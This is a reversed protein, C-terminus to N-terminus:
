VHARGIQNEKLPAAGKADADARWGRKFLPEGSLDIYLTAFRENLHAFVRFDPRETDISPRAGLQERLRDVIGDKIRLTAFNLSRLPSRTANLDVRLTGQADFHQEWGTRVAIRYLDDDDRYRGENVQRLVRSAIRSHLNAAYGLAVDGAFGVGGATPALAEAGLATLEAALAAELGRPCIAFYKLTAPAAAGSGTQREPRHETGSAAGKSM